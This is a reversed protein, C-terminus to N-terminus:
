PSCSNLLLKPYQNSLYFTYANVCAKSMGYAHMGGMEGLGIDAMARVKEEEGMCMDEYIKLAPKIVSNEIVEWNVDQKNALLVKVETSCTQLFMPAAGSSM